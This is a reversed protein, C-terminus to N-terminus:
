NFPLEEDEGTSTNSRIDAFYTRIFVRNTGIVGKKDTEIQDNKMKEIVEQTVYDMFDKLTNFVGIDEFRNLDDPCHNVHLEIGCWPGDFDCAKSGPLEIGCWPGDFNRAKSEPLLEFECNVDISCEFEKLDKSNDLLSQSSFNQYAKEYAALAVQAALLLKKKLRIMAPLFWLKQIGLHVLM